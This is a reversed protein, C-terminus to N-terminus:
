KDMTFIVCEFFGSFLCCAEEDSLYEPVKAIALSDVAAYEAVAGIKKLPLRGYVRDGEM